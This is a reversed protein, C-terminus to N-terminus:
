EVADRIDTREALDREDRDATEEPHSPLSSVVPPPPGAQKVLFPVNPDEEEETVPGLEAVIPELEDELSPEQSKFDLPRDREEKGHSDSEIVPEAPVDLVPASSLEERDQQTNHLGNGNTARESGSEEEVQVAITTTPDLWERGEIRALVVEVRKRADKTGRELEARRRRASGDVQDEIDAYIGKVLANRLWPVLERGFWAISSLVIQKEEEREKAILAEEESLGHDSTGGGGRNSGNSRDLTSGTATSQEFSALWADVFAELVRSARELEKSQQGLLSEFIGRVPLLRLSNYSNVYANILHALPPLLALTSCPQPNWDERRDHGNGDLAFTSRTPSPPLQTSLLQATGEPVVLWDKLPIKGLKRLRTSSTRLATGGSQNWGQRWESEWKLGAIEWETTVIKEVTSEFLQALSTPRSSPSSPISPAFSDIFSCGYRTFSHSCYTLQTVISSLCATSTIHPLSQSLMRALSSLSTSVFLTLPATPDLSPLPTFFDDTSTSPQQDRPGDAAVSSSLFIETYMSITEGVIERWVEIWKKVWRTREDNEEVGVGGGIKEGQRTRRRGGGGGPQPNDDSHLEIGCAILQTEVQRLEKELCQWRSSLFIIRLGEEEERLRIDKDALRRASDDGDVADDRDSAAIENLKRLIGVGRVAAPLKLGREHLSALVQGRLGRLNVEVERSLRELIGRAGGGGKSQSSPTQQRQQDPNPQYHKKISQIRKALQIAEPWQGQRICQKLLQPSTLLEELSTLREKVKNLEDRRKIFSDEIRSSFRASERELESTSEFLDSVHNSLSSFSNDIKLSSQHSLLFAPYRTFALNSLDSDLTSSLSALQNPLSLLSPLPESLLSSLYSPTSAHSLVDSRVKLSEATSLLLSSLTPVPATDSAM